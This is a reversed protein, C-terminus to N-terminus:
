DRGASVCRDYGGGAYGGGAYAGGGGGSYGGYGGGGMPPRDDYRPREEYRPRDGGFGSRCSRAPDSKM